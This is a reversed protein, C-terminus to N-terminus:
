YCTSRHARIHMVKKGWGPPTQSAIPSGEYTMMMEIKGKFCKEYFKFAEECQGNFSLYPNLQM